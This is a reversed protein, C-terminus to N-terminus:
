SKTLLEHYIQIRDQPMLENVGKAFEFVGNVERNELWQVGILYKRDAFRKFFRDMREYCDPLLMLLCPYAFMKQANIADKSVPIHIRAKINKLTTSCQQLHRVITRVLATQARAVFDSDEGLLLQELFKQDRQMIQAIMGFSVTLLQGDLQEISRMAFSAFQQQLNEDDMAAILMVLMDFGRDEANTGNAVSKEAIEFLHRVLDNLKYINGETKYLMTLLEYIESDMDFERLMRQTEVEDSANADIYKAYFYEYFSRHFFRFDSNSHQSPVFVETRDACYQLFEETALKCATKSPFDDCYLEVMLRKIARESIDRNNPSGRKALEMFTEDTLFIDLKEWDYVLGTRSNKISDKEKERLNAMYEFCKEYLQLKNSPLKGEKHYITLLLSLTLFGKVFKRNVLETAEAVFGSRREPEFKQEAIFRDVYEEVDMPTVARIYHCTINRRPIFGRERSTICVKNGPYIQTFHSIILDHLADRHENGVEDLADMLLLCRGAKLCATLFEPELESPSCLSGHTFCEELFEQLDRRTGNERVLRKIDGRIILLPKMEFGELLQPEVCLQRLFLSKGYGAGGVVYVIDDNIFLNRIRDLRQAVSECIQYEYGREDWLGSLYHPVGHNQLYLYHKKRPRTRLFSISEELIRKFSDISDQSDKAGQESALWCTFGYDLALPDVEVREHSIDTDESPEEDMNALEDEPVDEARQSEEEPEPTDALQPVVYIKAFKLTGWPAIPINNQGDRLTQNYKRIAQEMEDSLVGSQLHDTM